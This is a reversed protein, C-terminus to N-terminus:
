KAGAQRDFRAPNAAIARFGAVIAPTVVFQPCAERTRYTRESVGLVAAAQPQTIGAAERLAYLRTRQAGHKYYAGRASM